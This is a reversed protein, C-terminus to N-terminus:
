KEQRRRKIESAVFNLAKADRVKAPVKSKRTSKIVYTEFVLPDPLRQQDQPEERGGTV